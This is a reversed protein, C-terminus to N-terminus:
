NLLCIPLMGTKMCIIRPRGGSHASDHNYIASVDKSQMNLPNFQNTIKVRYNSPLTCSTSPIGASIVQFAKDPVPNSSASALCRSSAVQPSNRLASAKTGSSMSSARCEVFSPPKAPWLSSRASNQSLSPISTDQAAPSASGVVTGGNHARPKLVESFESPLHRPNASLLALFSNSLDTRASKAFDLNLSHFVLPEQLAPRNGTNTGQVIFPNFPQRPNKDM